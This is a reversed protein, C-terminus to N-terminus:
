DGDSAIGEAASRKIVVAWTREGAIRVAKTYRKRDDTTELWDRDRWTRLTAEVDFNGRELLDKVKHSFFAISEWDESRDWKGSLGLTPIREEMNRDTDLRGDFTHQNAQAWSVVMALAARARDADAAEHVLDDWLADVPGQYAWPLDLVRHTLKATMDLLAFYAALRGAVPNGNARELYRQQVQRYQERWRDWQERHSAIYRVLQPGAHGYNHRVGLDIDQVVPATTADAKGFPAGWLTLM